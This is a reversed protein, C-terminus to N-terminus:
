KHKSFKASNHEMNLTSGDSAYVDEVAVAFATAEPELRVALIVERQNTLNLQVDMVVSEPTITYNEAKTASNASVDMNFTVAVKEIGSRTVDKAGRVELTGPVPGGACGPLAEGTQAASFVEERCKLSPNRCKDVVSKVKEEKEIFAFIEKIQRIGASVLETWGKYYVEMLVVGIGFYDAQGVCAYGKSNGPPAGILAGIGHSLMVAISDHEVGVMRLMQGSMVVTKQGYLEFAWMNPTQSEWELFFNIEPFFGNMLETLFYYDNRNKNNTFPRKASDSFIAAQQPTLYSDASSPIYLSSAGYATFGSLANVPLEKSKVKVSYDTVELNPYAEAFAKSGLRPLKDFSDVMFKKPPNILISYDASVIGNSNILHGDLEGSFQNTGIGATAIHHIGGTFLGTQISHIEVFGGTALMLEDLGPVLQDARKIRKNGLYFVHDPTVIITDEEGYQIRLMNTGTGGPGTGSSFSVRNLTWELNGKENIIATLVPDNIQFNQIVKVETESVAIETGYAFCSCCCYCTKWSWNRDGDRLTQCADESINKCAGTAKNCCEATAVPFSADKPNCNPIPKDDWTKCYCVRKYNSSVAAYNNCHASGCLKESPGLTSECQNYM